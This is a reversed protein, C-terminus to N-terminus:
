NKKLEKFLKFKIKSNQKKIEDKVAKIDKYSKVEKNFKNVENYLKILKVKSYKKPKSYYNFKEWTTNLTKKSMYQKKANIADIVADRIHNIRDTKDLEMKINSLM